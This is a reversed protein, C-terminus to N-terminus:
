ENSIKSKQNKQYNKCYKESYCLLYGYKMIKSNTNKSSNTKNKM